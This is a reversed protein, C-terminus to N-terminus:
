EGGVVITVDVTLSERKHVLAHDVKVDRGSLARHYARIRDRRRFTSTSRYVEGPQQSLLAEYGDKPGALEGDVALKGIWYVPGEDIPLEVVLASREPIRTIRPAEIVAGVRGREYLATVVCGSGAAVLEASYPKGPVNFRGNESAVCARLEEIPTVEVGPWEIREIAWRSGEHLELCLDVRDAGTRQARATGQADLYGIARYSRELALLSRQVAAPDFIDGALPPVWMGADPLLWGRRRLVADIVPREHVDVVIAADDGRAEWAVRVEDFTGLRSIAAFDDDLAAGRLAGGVRSKMAERIMTAPVTRAGRVDIDVVRLGEPPAPARSRERVTAIDMM